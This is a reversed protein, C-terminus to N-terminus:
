KVFDLAEEGTRCLKTGSLAVAFVFWFICMVRPYNWLYDALGCVMTGCLSAAAACTITRAASDPCHRVTRASRKINWLMSSVFGVVGLLGAEVWVELYFNHSHVYPFDAHYLNWDAIYAQPAATGLGAGRIPRSRIVELAAQILPIRSATSSDSLNTITLIRNWITAPLFPVALCCLLIFAPILKPKWLFVMVAMACAGGVWSARSYTMGLATLGLVFVGCALLKSFLRKSCLILAVVLPLLLILMEAFTNANDFISVVRGPMGANVKLDVTSSSVEVGQIRQYIGYLSSVAVCVAGGAALRMLDRATRVASVTVLVCLAASIHYFLFRLSLSPAYSCLVALFMAGFLVLPYFGTNALDLRLDKRHMAGAHFLVLLLAFGMLSYANNWYDFPIVWLLMILWSQAVATEEGMEFALRAFFSDEFTLSFASYLRHLLRGPLNVLWTLWRCLCSEPWARAVAGERCLPRLVRSGDIQRGCWAGAAALVRHVASDEYVACLALCLHYLYSERLLTM